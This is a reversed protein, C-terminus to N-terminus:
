RNNEETNASAAAAAMAADDAMQKAKQADEAKKKNLLTMRQAMLDQLSNSLESTSVSQRLGATVEFKRMDKGNEKGDKIFQLEVKEFAPSQRVSSLFDAIDNNEAATGAITVAYDFRPVTVKPKEPEKKTDKVKDALNKVLSQPAPGTTPPPAPPMQRTSKITFQDLRMSTPMRLSLEGLVAWRPLKEVLAATIEAKEMMSARQNELSKLQEIKKGEAAYDASVAEQQQRLHQWHRNTVFFAAVVGGMAIAFLTLMLINARTETRAEIYDHPLFSGRSPM